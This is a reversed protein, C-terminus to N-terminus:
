ILAATVSWGRQWVEEAPLEHLCKLLQRHGSWISCTSRFSFCPNDFLRVLMAVQESSTYLPSLGQVAYDVATQLFSFYVKFWDESTRNRRRKCRNCEGVWEQIEEYAAIIWYKKSVQSLVFNTGASHNAQKMVWHGWPLVMPFWVDCQLYEAFQLQGTVQICGDGDLM